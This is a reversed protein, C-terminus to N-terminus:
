GTLGVLDRSVLVRFGVAGVRWGKTGFGMKEIGRVQMVLPRRDGTDIAPTRRLEAGLTNPTLIMLERCRM